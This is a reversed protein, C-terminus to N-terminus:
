GQRSRLGALDRDTAFWLAEPLYFTAYSYNAMALWYAYEEVSSGQYAIVIL